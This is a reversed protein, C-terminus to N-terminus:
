GRCPVEVGNDGRGLKASNKGIQLAVGGTSYDFLKSGFVAIPEQALQVILTRGVLNLALMLDPLFSRMRLRDHAILDHKLLQFIQVIIRDFAPQDRGRFM